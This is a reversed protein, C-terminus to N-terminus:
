TGHKTYCKQDQVLFLYGLINASAHAKILVLSAACAALMAQLIHQKRKVHLLAMLIITAKETM